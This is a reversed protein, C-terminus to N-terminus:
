LSLRFYGFSVAGASSGSFIHPKHGTLKEYDAAVKVVDADAGRRGLIAVTGGSGGGTIKAGFLNESAKVLDVLLDTGETGLGCSSYSEHSGYMLKGLAELDPSSEGLLGAFLKVRANEYIPHKTPSFVSYVKEPKVSAVTDTIGQYRELFASGSLTSPLHAAFNEEFETPTINALYGNWKPDNVAVVGYSVKTVSLGALEAIIRCGIFAGTRVSGYDGAGVSHRIGSDIGWFSLGHPVAVTERLEAPQCIMSLLRDTEGAASTMQDMIGCPAGVVLNEVKQCLIALERPEMAIEFAAVVASMAAVELAASSSVGKGEPVKSDILIKAGDTFRIGKETSLVLFAGAIYAAWSDAPNGKFYERAVAYSIPQSDVYLDALPMEFTHTRDNEEGGLSVIKITGSANKQLALLAAEAIPMELVLSGSYDAIGGMVDLRGPARTIFIDQGAAFYEQSARVTEIFAAVDPQEHTDNQATQYM